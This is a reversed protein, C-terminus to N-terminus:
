QGNEISKMECGCVVWGLLAWPLSVEMSMKDGTQNSCCNIATTTFIFIIITNLFVCLLAKLRQSSVHTHTREAPPCREPESEGEWDACPEGWRAREALVEGLWAKWGPGIGGGAAVPVPEWFCGGWSFYTLADFAKFRMEMTMATLM